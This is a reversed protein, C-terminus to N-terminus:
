LVNDFYDHCNSARPSSTRVASAVINVKAEAELLLTAISLDTARM